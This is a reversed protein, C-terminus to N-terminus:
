PDGSVVLAPRYKHFLKVYAPPVTIFREELRHMVNAIRASKAYRWRRTMLRWVIASPEYAVQPEIAVRSQAFENIFEPDRVGPTLLVVRVDPAELMHELPGCRLVDRVVM